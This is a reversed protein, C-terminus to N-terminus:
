RVCDLIHNFTQVVPQINLQPGKMKHLLLEARIAPIQDTSSGGQESESGSINTWGVLPRNNTILYFSPHSQIVHYKGVRSQVTSCLQMLSLEQM